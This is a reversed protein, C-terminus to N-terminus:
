KESLSAYKVWMQMVFFDSIKNKLKKTIGLVRLLSESYILFITLLKEM